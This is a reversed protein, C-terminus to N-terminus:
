VNQDCNGARVIRWHQFLIFALRDTARMDYFAVTKHRDSNQASIPNPMDRSAM